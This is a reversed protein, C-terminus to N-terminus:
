NQGRGSGNLRTPQRLGRSAAKAILLYNVIYFNSFGESSTAGVVTVLTCNGVWNQKETARVVTGKEGRLTCTWGFINEEHSNEGTVKFM